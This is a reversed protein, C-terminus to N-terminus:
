YERLSHARRFELTFGKEAGDSVRVVLREEGERRYELRKPFDHVANEFVFRGEDCGTLRFAVPLENHTVKSLYFVGGSMEVLRLSEGSKLVGDTKGREIGSGEFTQPGREIWSEQFTTRDGEAIWDGLLWRLGALSDCGAAGAPATFTAVAAILLFLLLSKM